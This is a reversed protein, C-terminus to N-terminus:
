LSSDVKGQARHAVFGPASHCELQLGGDGIRPHLELGAFTPSPIRPLQQRILNLEQLCLKEGQFRLLFRVCFNCAQAFLDLLSVCGHHPLQLLELTVILLELPSMALLELALSCM